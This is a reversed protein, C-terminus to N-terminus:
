QAPRLVFDRLKAGALEEAQRLLEAPEPQLQLDRVPVQLVVDNDTVAFMDGGPSLSASTVAMGARILMLPTGTQADWLGALRDDCATTLLKGSSSLTVHNVWSAHGSFRRLIRGSELEWHLVVWDKGASFLSTSDPSFAVSYAWDTHGRLTRLLKPGALEYLNVTHDGSATALLKGDPSFAVSYVWDAHDRLTAVEAGTNPDRLYVAKDRGVIAVL